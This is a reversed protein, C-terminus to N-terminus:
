ESNLYLKSSRSKTDAYNASTWTKPGRHTFLAHMFSTGWLSFTNSEPEWSSRSNVSAMYFIAAGDYKSLSVSINVRIQERPGYFIDEAWSYEIATVDMWLNLLWRHFRSKLLRTKHNKYNKELWFQVSFSDSFRPLLFIDSMLLEYSFVHYSCKEVWPEILTANLLFTSM